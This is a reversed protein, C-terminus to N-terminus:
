GTGLTVGAVVLLLTASVSELRRTHRVGARLQMHLTGLVAVQAAVPMAARAADGAPPETFQPVWRRLIM